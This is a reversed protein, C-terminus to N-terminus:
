KTTYERWRGDKIVETYRRLFRVALRASRRGKYSTGPLIIAVRRRDPEIVLVPIDYDGAAHKCMSRTTDPSWESPSSIVRGCSCRIWRMNEVKM